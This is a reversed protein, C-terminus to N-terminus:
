EETESEIETDLFIGDETVTKIFFSDSDETTSVLYYVDQYQDEKPRYLTYSYSYTLETEPSTYFLREGKRELYVVSDSERVLTFLDTNWNPSTQKETVWVESSTIGSDLTSSSSLTVVETSPSVKFSRVLHVVEVAISIGLLVLLISLQFWRERVLVKLRKLDFGFRVVSVLYLLFSAKGWKKM